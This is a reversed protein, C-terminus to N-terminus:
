RVSIRVEDIYVDDNNDSADCLFRIKMAAPFLAQSRTLTVTQSSFTGNTFHTGAAYTGITYWATGDWYQLFFDEGTEMSVGKFWFDFKLENYATVNIGQTLAFASAAGSNDQINIAAAGQHAHTTSTYRSCDAGGDTYIGWGSEFNDFRLSTWGTPTPTPTPTATPTPTPTPLGGGSMPIGAKLVNVGGGNTSWVDAGGTTKSAMRVAYEPMTILTPADDPMWVALTVSSSAPVWTPITLQTSITRTAGDAAWSRPDAGTGWYVLEAGTTADLLKINVPRISILPAYGTNKVGFSVTFPQTRDIADPVTATVLEFRYGLRRRMDIECASATAAWYDFNTKWGDNANAWWDTNIFSWGQYDLEGAVGTCANRLDSCTEGGVPVITSDSAIYSRWSASDACTGPWPYCTYGELGADGSMFCDNYHGIRALNAPSAGTGAYELKYYGTRLQLFSGAPLVAFYKDLLAKRDASSTYPTYYWEGYAGFVGAQHCLIVDDYDAFTAALADLHAFSQALSPENPSSFSGDQHYVVRVISKVRQDRLRQLWSRIENLRASGPALSTTPTLNILGWAITYGNGRLGDIAALTSSDVSMLKMVGRNPNLFDETSAVYSLTAAHAPALGLSAVLLCPLLRQFHRM